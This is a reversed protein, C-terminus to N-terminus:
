GPVDALMLLCSEENGCWSSSVIKKMCEDKGLCYQQLETINRKQLLPTKNLELQSLISNISLSKWHNAIIRNQTWQNQIFNSSM